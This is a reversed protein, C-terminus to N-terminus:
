HRTAIAIKRPRAAEAKPIHLTLVGHRVEARAQSADFTEPLQFQRWYGDM